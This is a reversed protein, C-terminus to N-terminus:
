GRRSGAVGVLNAAGVLALLLAYLGADDFPDVQPTLALITGAIALTAGAGLLDVAWGARALVAAVVFGVGGGALYLGAIDVEELRSAGAWAVAAGWGLLVCASPWHGGTRGGALAAALYTAGLMGPVWYFRVSGKAVLVEIALAGALFCVAQIARVDGPKDNM